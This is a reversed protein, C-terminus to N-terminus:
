TTGDGVSSQWRSSSQVDRGKPAKALEVIEVGSDGEKRKGATLNRTKERLGWAFAM